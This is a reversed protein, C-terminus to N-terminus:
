PLPGSQRRRIRIAVRAGGEARNEAWALGGHADAIRRVLALGVGAGPHAARSHLREFIKFLKAAHRPDFGVGADAVCLVVHRDDSAWGSLAVMAKERTASFKIANAFLEELAARLLERDAEVDPLEGLALEAPADPRRVNAFATRALPELSVLEPRLEAREIAALRSLADLILVAGDASRRIRAIVEHAAPDLQAGHDLELIAAFNLVSGLPSRLEHSLARYLNALESRAREEALDATHTVPRGMEYEIRCLRM